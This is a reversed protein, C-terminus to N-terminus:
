SEMKVQKSSLAEVFNDTILEAWIPFDNIKGNSYLDADDYM